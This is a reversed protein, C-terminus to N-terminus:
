PTRCLIARKLKWIKGPAPTDALSSRVYVRPLEAQGDFRGTSQATLPTVGIFGTILAPFLSLIKLYHYM